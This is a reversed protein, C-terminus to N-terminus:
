TVTFTTADNLRLSGSVRIPQGPSVEISLSKLFAKANYAHTTAGVFTNFVVAVDPVGDGDTDWDPTGIAGTTARVLPPLTSGVTETLSGTGQFTYALAQKEPKRIPNSIQTVFASGSFAPDSAGDETIKFTATAATAHLASPVRYAVTTNDNVAHATYSGSWQYIGNPMYRKATPATANFATIEIEGFDVDLKWDQVYQAYGNSSGWTVLGSNGTRPATKPFHGTFSMTGSQLGMMREVGAGSGSLETIDFSENEIQFTVEQIKLATVLLRNLDTASTVSSLTATSGTIIYPM